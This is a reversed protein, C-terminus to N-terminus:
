GGLLELCPELGEIDVSARPQSRWRETTMLFRTKLRREGRRDEWQTGNSVYGIRESVGASGANDDWASTTASLAGLGEFALALVATRMLTGTGKGQFPLGLWSGTAVERVVPFNKAGLHQAGVVQGGRLVAFNLGWDWPSMTAWSHWIAGMTSRARGAPSDDAWHFDFSMEGPKNIGDAAVQALQLLLAEDPIRLELDEVRLRLAFIPWLESLSQKSM